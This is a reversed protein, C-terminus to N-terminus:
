NGKGTERVGKGNRRFARRSLDSAWSNGDRLRNRPSGSSRLCPILAPDLSAGLSGLELCNPACKLFGVESEQVM